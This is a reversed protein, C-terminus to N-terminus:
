KEVILDCFVPNAAIGSKRHKSIVKFIIKFEEKNIRGYSDEYMKTLSSGSEFNSDIYGIIRIKSLDRSMNLLSMPPSASILLKSSEDLNPNYFFRIDGEEYIVSIKNIIVPLKFEPPKIVLEEGISYLNLNVMEFITISNLFYTGGLVNIRKFRKGFIQWEKLYLEVAQKYLLKITKNLVRWKVQNESNNKKKKMKRQLVYSNRTKLLMFDGIKGSIDSINFGNLETKAM